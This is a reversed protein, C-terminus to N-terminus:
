IENINEKFVSDMYSFTFTFYDLLEGELSYHGITSDNVAIFLGDKSIQYNGIQSSNVVLKSEDIITTTSIYFKFSQSDTSVPQSCSSAILVTLVILLHKM